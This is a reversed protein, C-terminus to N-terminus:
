RGPTQQAERAQEIKRELRTRLAPIEAQLRRYIGVAQDWQKRAEALNAAALGAQKVWYPDPQEGDRLNKGYLVRLYHELARGFLAGQEAEPRLQAHKELVIGLGIEAQSRPEVRATSEVVKRYCEAASEYRKAAQAPDQAALQLHCDGIRGWALPASRDTQFHETIKSFAAIAESYRAPANTTGAPTEVLFTDGRFLYAEAVLATPVPSAAVHLPGNTILWDFHDRATRYRQGAVAARGAM